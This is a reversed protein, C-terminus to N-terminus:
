DDDEFTTKKGSASATVGPRNPTGRGRGGGGRGGRRGGFRSGGDRGGRRGGSDRGGGRGGSWGDRSDGRPRAEEVTLYHDGLQSGGLELAKNFADADKFELYAIGKVAGTEYDPPISIRTIEGCTGFHEQLSSRIEDEGLSKDFGRVFIKQAQGREEKQFSNNVKGNYPTYSGRDGKVSRKRAVDLRVERGGLSQGNLELAQCCLFSVLIDDVFAKIYQM